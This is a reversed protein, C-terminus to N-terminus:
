AQTSLSRLDRSSVPETSAPQAGPAVGRVGPRRRRAVDHLALDLAVILTGAM